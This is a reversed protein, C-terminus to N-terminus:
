YGLKKHRMPSQLPRPLIQDISLKSDIKGLGESNLSSYSIGSRKIDENSFINPAVLEDLLKVTRIIESESPEKWPLRHGGIQLM